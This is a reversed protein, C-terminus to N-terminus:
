PKRAVGLISSGVPLPIARTAAEEVRSLAYLTRNVPGPPLQPPAPDPRRVVEMARQVLKAGHVWKFFHRVTLVDFHRELLHRVEGRTYRTVHHNLDDHTTWLHRYAPVTVLLIGGTEMLQHAHALARQPELMHELVDLFVVVGYEHEPRFTDDFARVHLSGGTARAADKGRATVLGDDSEVGDVTAAVTALAPLFVGDGCGVDLGRAWGGPPALRRLERMVVRERAQWWWHNDYLDRYQEGYEREM